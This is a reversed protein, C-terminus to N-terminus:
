EILSVQSEQLDPLLEDKLQALGVDSCVSRMEGILKSDAMIEDGPELADRLRVPYLHKKALGRNHMRATLEQGTYCGKSFSIGGFHDINCEMLTSKDPIMDRSGDPIGLVIRRKDWEEFPEEPLDQPKEFTRWGMAEHRTDKFAPAPVSDTGFVAYVANDEEVSLKVDMRLRYLNLRKYLDQAREGGECDLLLLGNGEVIFFDHLFKGQPSLFCTYLANQTDLNRIDNTILGQLYDHRDAGEIHILGRNPLRVFFPKSDATMETVNGYMIVLHLLIRYIAICM